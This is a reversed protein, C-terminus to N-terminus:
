DSPPLDGAGANAFKRTDAGVAVVAYADAVRRPESSALVLARDSKRALGRPLHIRPGSRTQPAADAYGPWFCLLVISSVTVAPDSHVARRFGCTALLV